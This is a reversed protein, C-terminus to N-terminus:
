TFYVRLDGYSSSLYDKALPPGKFIGANGITVYRVDSDPSATGENPKILVRLPSVDPIGRISLYIVDRTPNGDKDTEQLIMEKPISNSACAVDACYPDRRNGPKNPKGPTRTNDSTFHNRLQTKTWAVEKPKDLSSWGVEIMPLPNMKFQYWVPHAWETKGARHYRPVFVEGLETKPNSPITTLPVTLGGPLPIGAYASFPYDVSEIQKITIEPVNKTLNQLDKWKPLIDLLTGPGIYRLYVNTYFREFHDNNKSVMGYWPFQPQTYKTETKEKCLGLLRRVFDGSAIIQTKTEPNLETEALENVHAMVNEGLIHQPNGQGSSTPRMQRLTYISLQLSMVANYMEEATAKTEDALIASPASIAIRATFKIINNNYPSVHPHMYGDDEVDPDFPGEIKFGPKVMHPNQMWGPPLRGQTPRTVINYPTALRSEIALRPEVLSAWADEDADDEDSDSDQYEISLDTSPSADVVAGDDDSVLYRTPPPRSPRGVCLATAIRHGVVGTSSAASNM